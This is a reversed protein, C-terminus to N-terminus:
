WAVYEPFLTKELALELVTSNSGGNLDLRNVNTIVSADLEPLYFMDTASGFIAGTHGCFKGFLAVTEGYKAWEPAGALTAGQMQAAHTEPKLLTGKCLARVFTDLDSLTSIMAGSGALLDPNIESKDEFQGIEPNWGYGRLEGPMASTTAYTTHTLGLPKIIRETIEAGLTNGTVKEVIRGLLIANVNIYHTETNPEKFASTRAATRNILDESSYALTPSYYFTMALDEDFADPAGSRMRLLDEVTIKDANPFSPYWNSLKDTLALKGEEVLQLVVLGTFAKTISSIRFPDDFERARGTELNAKGTVYDFRGEGPINVAVAVSPLNNDQVLKDIQAILRSKVGETLHARHFTGLGTTNLNEVTVESAKGDPGIVFQVGSLGVANEGFTEYTFTDHDYHTMPTTIQKPGLVIALGGNEGRVIQMDGYYDNTYTGLYADDALAPTPNAPPKSYDYGLIVGITAPDDFAKKYAAVWDQTVKGNDLVDVFTQTVAEPVGTPASNALAVIAVNDAPLVRMNTSAGLAFAGSHAMRVQGRQDIALDWGLGTFSPKGGNNNRLLQPTRTELLAKEAIIPKGEYTGNGLQMLLWKAMDNASSSVGGAPSQADPDRKFKPTWKGDELVHTDARNTRALFDEYRSSTSSMGLPDYLAKKALDEWEMGSTKAAAVAAETLGFNTYTEKQRFTDLLKEYRLRRLIEARDYGLDELYDGAHEPLGSRHAFLDRITIENTIWDDSLRFNPDLDHIKTDWSVKGEGVLEAVVSSSVGKSLSALQFVTDADVPANTTTNAVGYGKAFVVEDGYVVAIALGPTKNDAILQQALRDIEGVAQDVQEKTVSGTGQAMVATPGLLSGLALAMGLCTLLIRTM